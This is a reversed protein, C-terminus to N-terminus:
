KSCVNWSMKLQWLFATLVTVAAIWVRQDSLWWILCQLQTGEFLQLSAMEQGIKLVGLMRM